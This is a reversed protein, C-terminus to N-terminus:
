LYVRVGANRILTALEAVCRDGDERSMPAFGFFEEFGIHALSHGLDYVPREGDVEANELAVSVCEAAIDAISLTSM